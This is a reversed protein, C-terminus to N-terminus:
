KSKLFFLKPIDIFETSYYAFHWEYYLESNATSILDDLVHLIMKSPIQTLDNTKTIYSQMEHFLFEFM